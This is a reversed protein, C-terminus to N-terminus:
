PRRRLFRFKEPPWYALWGRALIDERRFVGLQRSDTSLDANDGLLVYEGRALVGTGAPTLADSCSRAEARRSHKPCAEAPEAPAPSSPDKSLSLVFPEPTDGPVAAVRKVLRLGPRAPHKALVVDGRRPRSRVYALRDFLVAEGPRLAPYM